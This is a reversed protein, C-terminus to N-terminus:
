SNSSASQENNESRTTSASATTSDSCHTFFYLRVKWRLRALDNCCIRSKRVCSSLTSGAFVWRVNASTCTSASPRQRKTEPLKDVGSHSTFALHRKLSSSNAFSKQCPQCIFKSAGERHVSEVHAKLRDKRSFARGCKPCQIKQSVQGHVFNLHQQLDSENNFFEACLHCSFKGSM